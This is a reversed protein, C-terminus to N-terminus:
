ATANTFNFTPRSSRQKCPQQRLNFEIGPIVQFWGNMIYKYDYQRTTLKLQWYLYNNDNDYTTYKLVIKDWLAMYETDLFKKPRPRFYSCRMIANEILLVSLRISPRDSSFLCLLIYFDSSGDM